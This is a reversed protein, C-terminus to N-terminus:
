SFPKKLSTKFQLHSRCHPIHTPINNWVLTAQVCFSQYGFSKLKWKACFSTTTTTTTKNNKNNNNKNQNKNFQFPITRSPIYVSLCLSLHPPLTGDFFRFVFTAIKFLVSEKVPLWHLAKLLPRVQERRSKRFVGKTTRNQVNQMRYTQDCNIDILLSNCYDM